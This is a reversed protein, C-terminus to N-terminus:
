RKASATCSDKAQLMLTMDAETVKGDGNLDGNCLVDDCSGAAIDRALLEVDGKGVLGNRNLDARACMGLCDLGLNARIIALDDTNTLADLNIDYRSPGKGQYAKWGDVDAQSVRQDLNGDGKKQCKSAPKGSELTADLENALNQYTPQLDAPLCTIPDQGPPCNKLLNGDPQDVGTPNDTTPKLDYFERTTNTKYEAWPFPKNKAGPPLPAKCNENELQVLKYRKNRVASQAISSITISQGTLEGVACCSSAQQAGGPGFWTGGQDTCLSESFLLTDNCINGILCPWSRESPDPTFTGPAIQTFNTSRIPKSEPNTLYHLLPKSDLLRSSPVIEAVNVGGIEGFLQFLDVTNVLADVERGPQEVMAGAIILPVWVGTQYVTGKSRAASFGDAVRVAGGQTGNDGIIVVLTNGLTLRDLTKGDSKLRGLGLEAFMRGIEVDVGEQISNLLERPPAENDCRIPPNGPDRVLYTPAKQYPTHMANYSVTLMRPGTQNNWWTVGDDSQVTTMYDRSQTVTACDVTSLPPRVGQTVTRPWVYYGNDLDFDAQSPTHKGCSLLPRFLGGHQLCTRAPTTEPDTKAATIYHCALGGDRSQTYCAGPEPGQHYGCIQNGGRELDGATQDISPPGASNNGRFNQWGRTSPSCSGSSGSPDKEGTLHFKGVLANAYGVTALIRPLTAEFSSVYTQPLHNGVIAATVGTRLPYRGTFFTARSPSCEPMSWVNTFKVGNRAIRSLNPLSAPSFGGFGFLKLQDIGVDDLIIFLINPKQAAEAAAGGSERGSALSAILLAAGMIPAAMQKGLRGLTM